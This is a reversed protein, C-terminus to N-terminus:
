TWHWLLDAEQSRSVCEGAGGAESLVVAPVWSADLACPLSAHQSSVPNLSSQYGHPRLFIARFRSRKKQGVLRTIDIDWKRM